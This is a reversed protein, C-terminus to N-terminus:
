LAAHLRRMVQRLVSEPQPAELGVRLKSWHGRLLTDLEKIAQIKEDLHHQRLAYITANSARPPTKPLSHSLDNMLKRPVQWPLLGLVKNLWEVVAQSDAQQQSPVVDTWAAQSWAASVTGPPQQELQM